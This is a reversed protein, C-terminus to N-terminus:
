FEAPCSLLCFDSHTGDTMQKKTEPRELVGVSWYEQVGIKRSNRIFVRVAGLISRQMPQWVQERAQALSTCLLREQSLAPM